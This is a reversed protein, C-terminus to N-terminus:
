RLSVEFKEIVAKSFQEAASDDAEGPHNSLWYDSLAAPLDGKRYELFHSLLVCGLRLNSQQRFLDGVDREFHLAWHPAVAMYGRAGVPSVHFKKFNSAAEVVSLVLDPKLGSRNSEYWITQLLEKRELSTPLRAELTHSKADLWRLYALRAETSSFEPM